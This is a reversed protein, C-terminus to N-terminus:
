AASAFGEQSTKAAVKKAQRKRRVILAENLIKRLPDAQEVLFKPLDEIAISYGGNSDQKLGPTTTAGLSNVYADVAPALRLKTNQAECEKATNHLSGDNAKHMTVKAM